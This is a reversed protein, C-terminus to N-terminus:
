RWDVEATALVVDGDGLATVRTTAGETRGALRVRADVLVPARMRVSLTSADGHEHRRAADMLLIRLLPGHVLLDDLGEVRQAWTRDYHIRHANGTIASFRFLQRVDLAVDDVWDAAAAAAPDTAPPRAPAHPDAASLFVDHWTTRVADAGGVRLVRELDAFVLDGASGRKETVIGLTTTQEVVDGVRVPALFATDEGAYMRRPLAIEPLVGDRAPSGDDRLDALPVAFPFLVGEWAPPVAAGTALAADTAAFTGRYAEMTEARVVETRVVTM